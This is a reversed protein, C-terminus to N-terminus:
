SRTRSPDRWKDLLGRWIYCRHPPDKEKLESPRFFYVLNQSKTNAFEKSYLCKFYKARWTGMCNYTKDARLFHVSSSHIHGAVLYKERNSLFPMNYKKIMKAVENSEAYPVRKWLLKVVRNILGWPSFRILVKLLRVYVRVKIGKATFLGHEKKWQRYFSAQPSDPDNYFCNVLGAHITEIIKEWLAKGEEINVTLNYLWPVTAIYSPRVDDVGRLRRCVDIIKADAAGKYTKIFKYPLFSIVDTTISDGIPTDYYLRNDRYGKHNGGKWTFSYDERRRRLGVANECNKWDYVQGHMIFVQYRRESSDNLDSQDTLDWRFREAAYDGKSNNLFFFRRTAENLRRSVNVMRDHNGPVFIYEIRAKKLKKLFEGPIGLPTAKIDTDKEGETEEPSEDPTQNSDTKIHMLDKEPRTITEDPLPEKGLRKFVRFAALSKITEVNPSKKYDKGQDSYDKGTVVDFIEALAKEVKKDVSPFSTPDEWVINKDDHHNGYARTFEYEPTFWRETRLFDVIDGNLIIKIEADAKRTDVKDAYEAAVWQFFNVFAEHRVNQDSRTAKDQLSIDQLHLDSIAVLM